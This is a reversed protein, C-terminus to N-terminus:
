GIRLKKLRDGCQAADAALQRQMRANGLREGTRQAADARCM